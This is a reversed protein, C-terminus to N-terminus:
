PSLPTVRTVGNHTTVKVADGIRFHEGADLSYTREDGNDFRVSVETYSNRAGSQEIHQAAMGGALAGGITAAASGNGSGITSGAIGGLVAGVFSGLGSSQGGGQVTIDRVITITASRVVTSGQTSMTVPSQSTCACLLAVPIPLLTRM